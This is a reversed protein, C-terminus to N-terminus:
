APGPWRHATTSYCRWAHSARNRRPRRSRSCRRHRRRRRVRGPECGVGSGLVAPMSALGPCRVRTFPGHRSAQVHSARVAGMTNCVFRRKPQSVAPSFAVLDLCLCSCRCQRRGVSERAPRRWIGGGGQGAGWAHPGSPALPLLLLLTGIDRRTRQRTQHDNSKPLAAVAIFHGGRQVSYTFSPRYQYCIFIHSLYCALLLKPCGSVGSFCGYELRPSRWSPRGRGM